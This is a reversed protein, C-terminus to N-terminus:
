ARVVIAARVTAPLALGAGGPGQCASRPPRPKCRGGCFLRIGRAAVTEAAAVVQEESEVACPGAIIALEGGGIAVDGIMVASRGSGRADSSLKYPKTVRIAEAVGPLNEFLAPDIAGTNGTIAVATRGTGPLAHASWGMKEVAERVRAIDSESADSTMVILM